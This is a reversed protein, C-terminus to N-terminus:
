FHNFFLLKERYIPLFRNKLIIEFFKTENIHQYKRINRHAFFLKWLSKFFVKKEIHQYKRIHSWLCFDYKVVFDQYKRRYPCFFSKKLIFEFVSTKKLLNINEPIHVFFLTKLIIEFFTRKVSININYIRMYPWFLNKELHDWFLM